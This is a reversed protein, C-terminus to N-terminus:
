LFLGGWGMLAGDRVRRAKGCENECMRELYKRKVFKWVIVIFNV